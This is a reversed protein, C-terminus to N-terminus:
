VALVPLGAVMRERLADGDVGGGATIVEAVLLDAVPVATDEVEAANLDAHDAYSPQVLSGSLTGGVHDPACEDQWVQVTARLDGHFVLYKDTYCGFVVGAATDGTVVIKPDCTTHIGATRLDGLVVLAAAGDDLDHVAGSVTLDGDVIFGIDWTVDWPHPEDDNLPFNGTVTAGGPHLVYEGEDLNEWTTEPLGRRRFLDVAEDWTITRTTV